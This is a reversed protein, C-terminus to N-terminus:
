NADPDKDLKTMLGTKKNISFRVSPPQTLLQYELAKQHDDVVEILRLLVDPYSVGRALMMVCRHFLPSHRHLKTTTEQDGFSALIQEIRDFEENSM